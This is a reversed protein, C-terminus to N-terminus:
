GVAEGDRKTSTTRKLFVIAYTDEFTLLITM